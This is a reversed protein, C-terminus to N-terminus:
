GEEFYPKLDLRKKSTFSAVCSDRPVPIDEREMKKALTDLARVHPLYEYEFNSGKTTQTFDAREEKRLIQEVM